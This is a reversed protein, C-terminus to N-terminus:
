CTAEKECTTPIVRPTSARLSGVTTATSPIVHPAETPHLLHFSRPQIVGQKWGFARYTIGADAVDSLLLAVSYARPFVTRHLLRDDVSLFGRRFTCVEQREVPCSKCWEKVPHSHWWGLMLEGRHRLDLAARVDTWTQATFSLSTASGDGRALVQATVEVFPRRSGPDQHLHGVLIGGTEVPGAQEALARTERVVVPHFFVFVEDADVDTETDVALSERVFTALATQRWEPPSVVEESTFRSTVPAQRPRPFAVVRYTLTEGVDARDQAVLQEVAPQVLDALYSLTFTSAVPGDEASDVSVLVGGVYPEGMTDHWVPDVRSEHALSAERGRRRFADFRASEYAPEWDIDVPVQGAASGDARCFALAYHYRNDM